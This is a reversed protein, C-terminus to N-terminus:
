TFSGKKRTNRSPVAGRKHQFIPLTRVLWLFKRLRGSHFPIQLFSLASTHNFFKSFTFNIDI